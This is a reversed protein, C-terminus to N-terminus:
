NKTASGKERHKLCVICFTDRSLDQM